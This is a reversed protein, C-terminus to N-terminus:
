SHTRARLEIVPVPRFSTTSCHAIRAVGWMSRQANLSVRHSGRAVAGPFLANSIAHPLGPGRPIDADATDEARVTVAFLATSDDSVDRRQPMGPAM